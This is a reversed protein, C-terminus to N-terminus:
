PSKHRTGSESKAKTLVTRYLCPLLANSRTELPYLNVLDVDNEHVNTNLPAIM